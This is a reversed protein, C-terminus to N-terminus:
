RWRRAGAGAIMGQRIYKQTEMELHFRVEADLERDM